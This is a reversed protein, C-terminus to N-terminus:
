LEVKFTVLFTLRRVGEKIAQDSLRVPCHVIRPNRNDSIVMTGRSPPIEDILTVSEEPVRALWGHTLDRVGLKLSGGYSEPWNNHDTLYLLLYLDGNGPGDWHWYPAGVGDWLQITQIKLRFLRGLEQFFGDQRLLREFFRDYIVPRRTACNNALDSEKQQLQAFNDSSGEDILSQDPYSWMPVRFVQEDVNPLCTHWECGDTKLIRDLAAIWNAPLKQTLYGKNFFQNLMENSM